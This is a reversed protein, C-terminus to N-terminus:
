ATNPCPNMCITGTLDFGKMDLFPVKFSFPFVIKAKVYGLMVPKIKLQKQKDTLRSIKCHLHCSNM